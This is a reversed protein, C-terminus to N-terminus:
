NQKSPQDSGPLVGKQLMSLMNGNLDYTITDGTGTGGVSFDMKSNDGRRELLKGNRLYVAQMTTPTITSVSRMM